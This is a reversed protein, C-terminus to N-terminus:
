EIESHFLQEMPVKFIRALAWLEADTAPREQGELRSLSQTTISINEVQLKALLDKQKWDNKERLAVITRGVKNKNGYSRRIRM